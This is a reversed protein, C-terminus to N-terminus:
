HEKLKLLQYEEFKRHIAEVIEYDTSNYLYKHSFNCYNIFATLDDGELGTLKFVLERNFKQNIVVQEKEEQKVYLVKRKEKEEKSFNYYFYSVPHVLFFATSSIINTDLLDPVLKPIARPLGDIILGQDPKAELFSKKFEKYSPSINNIKVPEIEYIRRTLVVKEIDTKNKPNVIWVKGYYGLATIILTDSKLGPIKFIGSISSITSERTSENFIQAYPIVQNTLSDIVIGEITTQSPKQQGFGAFVILGSFIFIRIYHFPM